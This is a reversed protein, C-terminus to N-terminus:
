KERGGNVVFQFALLMLILILLVSFLSLDNTDMDLSDFQLEQVIINIDPVPDPVVDDRNLNEYDISEELSETEELSEVEEMEDSVSEVETEVMDEIIVDDEM